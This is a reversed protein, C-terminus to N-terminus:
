RPCEIRRLEVPATPDPADTVADTGTGLVGGYRDADVPEVELWYWQFGTTFQVRVGGRDQARWTRSRYRSDDGDLDEAMLSWAGGIQPELRWRLRLRRAIHREADATSGHRLDQWAGIEVAWCGAAEHPPGPPRSQAPSFWTVTTGRVEGVVDSRPEAGIRLHTNLLAQEPVFGTPGVRPDPHIFLGTAHVTDRAEVGALDGLDALELRTPGGVAPANIALDARYAEMGPPVVLGGTILLDYVPRGNRPLQTYRAVDDSGAADGSLTGSAVADLASALAVFNVSRLYHKAEDGRWSGTEILVTSVGWSQMGDGFARPSYADDYQTLHEGALPGIVGALHAALRRARLYSPTLTGDEDPRPALLSMAALRSSTGVRSRPNQDHLNFGFQPQWREQVVKLARGEPTALTRADRNVDIGLVNRRRHRQAGDPNLMPVALITLREQWRRVRDDDARALYSFLDALARTATTEDGHMQSWFLVRIPGDGYRVLRIARGEASRGIDESSIAPAVDIIPELEAWVEGHQLTPAPFAPIRHQRHLALLEATVAPWRPRLSGEPGLATWALRAVDAALRRPSLTDTAGESLVVLVFPPSGDPLIIAADHQVGTIWGTKHAVRTGAPLGAPIMTDFEQAALVDQLEACHAAPLVDCRAISAMVHAIGRATIVNNMGARHARDDEVGRLLRVGAGGVREVTRQIRQPQLEDILINTALNSSRVTMLRALERRPVRSGIRTYLTADSDDDASLVYESGDAISRFANGIAVGEDLSITGEAARRYLELLVTVKMTSAAHFIMRDNVGLSRGTEIDIVAIGYTGPEQSLRDRIALELDDLGSAFAQAVPLAPRAAVADGPTVAPTGAPSTSHSCAVFLFLLPAPALRM